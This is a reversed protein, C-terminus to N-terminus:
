SFQRDSVPKSFTLTLESVLPEFGDSVVAGPILLLELDGNGRVNYEIQADRIKMKLM